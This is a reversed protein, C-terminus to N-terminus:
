SMLFMDSIMQSVTIGYRDVLEHYRGYFKRLSSKLKVMQFEQKLMFLLKDRHLDVISKLISIFRTEKNMRKYANTVIVDYRNIYYSLIGYICTVFPVYHKRYTGEKVEVM